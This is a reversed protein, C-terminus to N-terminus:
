CDIRGSSSDNSRWKRRPHGQTTKRCYSFIITAELDDISPMFLVLISRVTIEWSYGHKYPKFDVVTIFDAHDKIYRRYCKGEHGAARLKGVAAKLARQIPPHPMVVEDWWMVGIVAKKPVAQSKWPLPVVTPDRRWPEDQAWVQCILELDRLSRGIPGIASPIAIQGPVPIVNGYYSCRRSTPKLGYLGSFAAPGRISGGVDTGIGM